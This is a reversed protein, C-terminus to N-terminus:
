GLFEDATAAVLQELDAIAPDDAATFNFCSKGQMRRRLREPLDDVLAPTAYVPMYHFSVYSKKVAVAGFMEPKATGRKELYLSGPEDTTVHARGVYPELVQHLRAFVAPFEAASM